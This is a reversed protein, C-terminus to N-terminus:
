DPVGGVTLGLWDLLHKECLEKVDYMMKEKSMPIFLEIVEAITLTNTTCMFEHSLFIAKEGAKTFTIGKCEVTGKSINVKVVNYYSINGNKEDRNFLNAGLLNAILNDQAVQVAQKSFEEQHKCKNYEATLQCVIEQKKV